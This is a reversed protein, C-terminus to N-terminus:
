DKIWNLRSDFASECLLVEFSWLISIVFIYTNDYYSTYAPQYTVLFQLLVYLKYIIEM